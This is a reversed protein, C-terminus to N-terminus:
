SNQDERSEQPPPPVLPEIQQILQPVHHTAVRWMLANDIEGYEHVLRHRQAMIARWPIQPHANKFVDSLGRAAEGIIEV